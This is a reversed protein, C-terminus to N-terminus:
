LFLPMCIKVEICICFWSPLSPKNLSAMDKVLVISLQFFGVCAKIWTQFTYFGKCDQTPLSRGAFLKNTSFHLKLASLIRQWIQLIWWSNCGLFSLAIIDFPNIKNRRFHFCHGLECVFARVCVHLCMCVTWTGNVFYCAIRWLRFCPLQHARTDKECKYMQTWIGSLM